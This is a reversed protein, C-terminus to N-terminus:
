SQTDAPGSSKRLFDADVTPLAVKADNYTSIVKKMQLEGIREFFSEITQTPWSVERYPKGPKEVAVIAKAFVALTADKEGFEPKGERAKTLVEAMQEDSLPRLYLTVESDTIEKLVAEYREAIDSAEDGGLSAEERTARLEAEYQRKLRQLKGHLDLRTAVDVSVTPPAVDGLFEDLDFDDPTTTNTNAM